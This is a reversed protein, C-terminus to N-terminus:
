LMVLFITSKVKSAAKNKGLNINFGISKAICPALLTLSIRPNPFAIEKSTPFVISPKCSLALSKIAPEIKLTGSSLFSFSSVAFSIRLLM